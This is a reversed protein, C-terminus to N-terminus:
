TSLHQNLDRMKLRGRLCTNILIEMFKDLPLGGGGCTPNKKEMKELRKNHDPFDSGNIAKPFNIKKQLARILELM